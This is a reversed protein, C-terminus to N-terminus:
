APPDFRSEGLGAAGVSWLGAGAWSVTTWVRTGSATEVVPFGAGDRNPALETRHSGDRRVALLPWALGHGRPLAEYLLHSGDATFGLPLLTSRRGPRIRAVRGGDARVLVLAEAGRREYGIAVTRSDPSWDASPGIGPSGPTSVTERGGTALRLIIARNRELLAVAAGSPALEVDPALRQWGLDYRRFRGRQRADLTYRRAGGVETGHGVVAVATRGDVTARCAVSAGTDPLALRRLRGREPDASLIAVPGTPAAPDFACQTLALADDGPAAFRGRAPAAPLLHRFAHSGPPAWISAALGSDSVILLAGSVALIPRDSAQPLIKSVRESGDARESRLRAPGAGADELWAAREGTPTVGVLARGRSLPALLRPTSGDGGITWIAERGTGDGLALLLSSGDASAALADVTGPAPLAIPTLASASSASARVAAGSDLALALGLALVPVPGVVRPRRECPRAGRRTAALTPPREPV